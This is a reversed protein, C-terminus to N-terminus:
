DTSESDVGRLEAARQRQDAAEQERGSDELVRAYLEVTDAVAPHDLGVAREWTAISRVLLAEAEALEGLAYRASAEQHDNVALFRHDPGLSALWIERARRYFPLAKEMDGEAQSLNGLNHVAIGIDPHNDDLAREWITLAEEICRRAEDYRELSQYLSGLNNLSAAIDPHDPELHAREIELARTFVKEAAEFDGQENHLTGLNSLSKAVELSDRGYVRERVELSRTLVIEAEENKGQNWIVIGLSNLTRALERPDKIAGSEWLEVKDRFVREAEDYRGQNDYLVGLTHMTATLEAETDQSDPAQLTLVAAELMEAAEDYFGLNTYVRGMTHELRGKIRPEAELGAVQDRGRDLIERTTITRGRAVGPDSVEFLQVLYETVRNASEAQLTAERQAARARLFGVTALLAGAILALLVIGVAAVELTHRRVFKRARDVPSPPRAEVAHDSLHRRIDAAFAEVSSYRRDPSKELAKMVIWDLDGQLAASLASSSLRRRDATPDATAGLRSVMQSPRPPDRTTILKQFEVIGAERLVKRDFPLAGVLLLYLVMGLAYVDARTDVDEGRPDAQEPSMFEPTGMVEGVRTFMTGESLRHGLAKALGFDIIKPLPGGDQRTVLINSPKLDRHIIAKQHAHQVGDCVKLFLELRQKLDLRHRDCFEDIPVGKVMEMAIFPRGDTSTGAGFVRAIGNHDMLALAQREAEFRALLKESDMGPRILKIAVRRHIGDRQEASWVEGMGGTGIREFLEFGEVTPSPRGHGPDGSTPAPKGDIPTTPGELTPSATLDVPSGDPKARQDSDSM